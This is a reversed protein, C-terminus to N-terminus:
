RAGELIARVRAVDVHRRVHEALRDLAAQRPDFAGGDEPLPALGRRERLRNLWRRRFRPSEFIGHLYTGFVEGAAAGDARPGEPAIIEAFPQAGDLYRSRGMHIEYGKVEVGLARGEVRITQKLPAFTTEVPLLGLGPTVGAVSEVGEPDILERGLMQYGGCIGVVPMGARALRDIAGALGRAYLWRLDDVTNKTGPLIVADPYGLEEPRDVYRLGVGAEAALPDFDNFNAIRPLRIVAIDLGDERRSDALGVSDEEDLGLDHLHPVVGLVPLGTREELWRVGDVFLTPDGRFKNIILGKVRAREEPALLALTGVLSAFVGGRDIDAVLIVAADLIRATTMNALDWHKLNVEAPSGAGEAIILEYERALEAAAEAVVALARAHFEEKYQRWSLDGVPRGLMVVQSRVDATPKLLIPNMAVTPEVGAAEAQLAQARGIELGDATVAANLAMNQAKFPAVRIGDQRFIRCFAAALISKGVHSATGQFMLARAM